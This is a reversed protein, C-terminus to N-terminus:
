FFSNSTLINRRKNLWVDLDLKDWGNTNEWTYHAEWTNDWLARCLDLIPIKHFYERDGTSQRGSGVLNVVAGNSGRQVKGNVDLAPILEKFQSGFTEPSLQNKHNVTRCWALWYGYLDDRLVHYNDDKEEFYPLKASRLVDFWFRKVGRLTAIQNEMLAFTRPPNRLDVRPIDVENLFYYLLAAVGGNKRWADLRGFYEVDRQHAESVDVVFFRRAIPGAPVAWRENTNLLSRPYVRCNRMPLNKQNILRTTGSVHDKFRGEARRDGAWFAEEFHTLLAHEIHANFQGFIQDLDTIKVYHRGMLMALTEAFFSKGIGEAGRHVMATGMLIHPQQFIQAVWALGWECNRDDLNFCVDHAYDLFIQVDGKVPKIPWGLWSNYISPKNWKPDPNFTLGLYQTKRERIFLQGITTEKVVTGNKTENTINIRKAEFINLFDEKRLYEDNGDADTHKIKFAGNVNIPVYFRAINRVILGTDGGWGNVWFYDEAQDKAAEAMLKALQLAKDDERVRDVREANIITLAEYFTIHEKEAKLRAQRETIPGLNMITSVIARLEDIKAQIKDSDPLGDSIYQKLGNIAKIDDQKPSDGNKAVSILKDLHNLHPAGFEDGSPDENTDPNNAMVCFRILAHVNSGGDV